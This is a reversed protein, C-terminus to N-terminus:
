FLCRIAKLKIVRDDNLLVELGEQKLRYQKWQRQLWCHLRSNTKPTPRYGHNDVFAKLEEYRKNWQAERFSFIFGYNELLKIRHETLFSKQGAKLKKFEHRQVDVWNALLPYQLCKLPIDCHGHDVIYKGFERYRQMWIEERLSWSFAIAELKTKRETSLSKAKWMARQTKTWRHLVPDEELTISTHGNTEYHIKLKGYNDEWQQEYVEWIMDVSELAKVREPQLAGLLHLHRNRQVWYHLNKDDKLTVQSHRNKAHFAKLAALHESWQAQKQKYAQQEAPSLVEVPGHSRGELAASQFRINPIKLEHRRCLGLTFRLM